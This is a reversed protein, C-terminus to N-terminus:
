RNVIVKTVYKGTRLVYVGEPFLSDLVTREGTIVSQEAYKRGTIDFVSITAESGPQDPLYLTVIIQGNEGAYALLNDGNVETVSSSKDEARRFIISFRDTVPTSNATFHYDGNRLNFATNHWTDFLFVDLTDINLIEKAHFRFAGNENTQFGLPIETGDTIEPLGNIVLERTSAVPLTFIEVGQNTIWKDSDYTDFSKKAETAAYIVTEDTSADGSAVLRLM